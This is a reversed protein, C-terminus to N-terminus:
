TKRRANGGFRPKSKLTQIPVGVQEGARVCGALGGALARGLADVAAERVPPRPDGLLEVLHDLLLPWLDHIRALNHLLVDVMRGLAFLRRACVCQYKHM